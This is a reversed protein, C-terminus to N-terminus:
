KIKYYDEIELDKELSLSYEKGGGDLTKEVAFGVKEYFDEVLHNKLTPLYKAKVEKVGQARLANLVSKVFAFEINKGLIRCSLLLSDICASDGEREVIIAGTIGNDGFKDRVSLCMVQAGRNLFATIDAETYRQTTLNFQNTKQTMQAIRLINFADAPLIDMEIQLSRIYEGMDTFQQQLAKREANAKYQETKHKDEATLEYTRFYDRVLEAYLQMLLLPRSPFDPVAVMPLEQRVLERETPNDDVFVMSDLGINLEAALERINDAKNNWNIRYAAIYKRNLKIFPNKEWAELVDAENNKSCVTLIVGSDALGILAEQFYLFANGPYDGGIKIGTIGDEGLVGGWLTNDLDLVLCKKRATHIQRIREALWDRFFPALTPNLIMQSIFYFRWNMWEEPKYRCLFESFRICKIQPHSQALEYTYRNVDEIAQLLATDSDCTTVPFLNELSLVYLPKSAPLQAVVMALKEKIGLTEALQKDRDFSIPVQYFWVYADEDAPIVSIDGYGSFHDTDAFLNEVTYNRFIYM